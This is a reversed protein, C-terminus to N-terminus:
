REQENIAQRQQNARNDKGPRKLARAQNTHPRAANSSRLGLRARLRESVQRPKRM